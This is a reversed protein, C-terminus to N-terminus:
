NLPRRTRFRRRIRAAPTVAERAHLGLRQSCLVPKEASDPPSGKGSAVDLMTWVRIVRDFPPEFEDVAHAVFITRSDNIGCRLASLPGM